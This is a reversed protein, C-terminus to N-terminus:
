IEVKTPYFRHPDFYILFIWTSSLQSYAKLRQVRRNFMKKNWHFQKSFEYPLVSESIPKQKNSKNIFQNKENEIGFQDFTLFINQDFKTQKPKETQARDQIWYVSMALIIWFRVLFWSMYVHQPRLHISPCTVYLTVFRIYAWLKKLILISVKSKKLFKVVRLFNFTDERFKYIHM